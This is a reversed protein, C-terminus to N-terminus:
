QFLRYFRLSWLDVSSTFLNRSAKLKITSPSIGLIRSIQKQVVNKEFHQIIKWRLNLLRWGMKERSSSPREQLSM